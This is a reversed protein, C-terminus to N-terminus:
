DDRGDRSGSAPSLQLAASLWRFLHELLVRDGKVDLFVAYFHLEFVERCKQRLGEMAKQWRWPTPELEAELARKMSTACTDMKEKDTHSSLLFEITREEQTYAKLFAVAARAAQFAAEPATWVHLVQASPADKCLTALQQQAQGPADLLPRACSARGAM